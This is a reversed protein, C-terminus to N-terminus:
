SAKAPENSEIQQAPNIQPVPNLRHKMDLQSKYVTIPLNALQPWRVKVFEPLIKVVSPLDLSSIHMENPDIPSIEDPNGAIAQAFFTANGQADRKIMMMYSDGTRKLILNIKRTRRSYAVAQPLETEIMQEYQDLYFNETVEDMNRDKM